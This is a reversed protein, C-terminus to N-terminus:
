LQALQKTLERVKESLVAVREEDHEIEAQRLARTVCELRHGVCAKRFELFALRIDEERPNEGFTQEVEFRIKESVTLEDYEKSSLYERLLASGEHAYSTGQYVEVIGQVRQARGIHIPIEQKKQPTTVQPAPEIKKVRAFATHVSDVSVGLKQAISTIFYDAELPSKLLAVLPLVREEVALIATRTDGNAHRILYGTLFDIIHESEKVLQLMEKPNDAIIDAPDKGEPLVVVKVHMGATLATRASKEGARVGARDGDLALMINNTFRQILRLHTDTFATGSIAVTNKFGAQHLLVLDMQGEAVLVYGRERAAKKAVDMGYLVKSKNYLITEPTNLYKAVGEKPHLARGSFGVTRGAIDRIPFMIRDRFRDYYVDKKDSAQKILGAALLEQISYGKKQAHTLFVRWDNPAYGIGWTRVSTASIGRKQVYQQAESTTSLHERYFQEALSMVQYMRDKGSDDARKEYTLTVGAKEALIKLAGKFDVGEMKQIFTFIDGGQNSSFCYYTGREPSVHFSPTKEKNFPSLGVYSRGSRKLKVYPSIVDIISLKEKIDDVNKSM